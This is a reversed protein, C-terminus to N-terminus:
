TLLKMYTYTVYDNTTNHERLKAKIVDLSMKILLAIM